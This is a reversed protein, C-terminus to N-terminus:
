DEFRELDDPWEDDQEPEGDDLPGGPEGLYDEQDQGLPEM